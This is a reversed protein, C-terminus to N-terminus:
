EIEIRIDRLRLFSSSSGPPSRQLRIQGDAPWAKRELVAEIVAGSARVEAQTRGSAGTDVAVQGGAPSGVPLLVLRARMRAWGDGVPAPLRVVGGDVLAAGHRDDLAGLAWPPELWRMASLRRNEDGLFVVSRGGRQIDVVFVDPLPGNAVAAFEVKRGALSAPLVLPHLGNDTGEWRGVPAASDGASAEVRWRSLPAGRWDVWAVRADATLDVMNTATRPMDDSWPAFAMLRYQGGGLEISGDVSPTLRGHFRLFEEVRLGGRRVKAASFCASSEPRLFRSASLGSADGPWALRATSHHLIFSEAVRCGREVWVVSGAQGGAVDLREAARRVERWSIRPGLTIEPDSGVVIAAAGLAALTAAAWIREMWRPGLRDALGGLATLLGDAALMTAPAWVLTLYRPWAAYFAYFSLGAAAPVAWWWLDRSRRRAARALGIAAAPAGIWGLGLVFMVSLDVFNGAARRWKSLAILEHRFGQLQGTWGGLGTWQRTAWWVAAALAFPAAFALLRSGRTRLPVAPDLLIALPPGAALFVAPERAAVAALGFTGAAGARWLAGSASPNAAWMAALFLLTSMERYPHLLWEIELPHAVLLWAFSAAFAAGGAGGAGFRRRAVAMWVPLWALGIAWNLWYPAWSGGWRWALALLGPWLPSIQSLAARWEPSGAPAEALTRALSLYLKPDSTVVYTVCRLQAWTWIAAAAAVTWWPWWHRRRRAAAESNSPRQDAATM